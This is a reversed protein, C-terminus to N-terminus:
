KMGDGFDTGFLDYAKFVPFKCAHGCGISCCKMKWPCSEDGSCKKDCTGVTNPSPKPCTGPKQFKRPSSLACAKNMEMTILAVLVLATATKMNARAPVVAPKSCLSSTEYYDTVFNRPLKWSTYSFCCSTPPDSDVASGTSGHKGVFWFLALLWSYSDGIGRDPPEPTYSSQPGSDFVPPKCAHGCGNSCCKMNGPCSEDGSCSEDCTGFTNPPLQPCSGSKQLGKPSSLAHATDMVITILALLVLVTATKMIA